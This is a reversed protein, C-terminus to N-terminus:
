DGCLSARGKGTLADAAVSGGIAAIAAGISAAKKLVQPPGVTIGPQALTGEVIIVDPVTLSGLNIQSRPEPQLPFVISEDTLDIKGAGRIHLRSTRLEVALETDMRGGSFPWELALCEVVAQRDEAEEDIRNPNFANFLSVLVNEGVRALAGNISGGGVSRLTISGDLTAAIAHPSHGRGSLRLRMDVPIGSVYDALSDVDGLSVGRVDLVLNTSGPDDSPAHVLDVDIRGSPTTAVAGDVALRGNTLTLPIAVNSLRLGHWDIEEATIHAELQLDGIWVPLIPAAGFLRQGRSDTAAVPLALLALAM